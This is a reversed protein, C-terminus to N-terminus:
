ETVPMKITGLNEYNELRIDKLERSNDFDYFNKINPNLWLTPAKPLNHEKIAKEYRNIQERIGDIQNEYIHADNTIFTFQGPKAGISQAILYCLTAYQVVNFPLGLPVDSSRSTVLLNLKGDILNWQSNWVCSPLAATELWENQWLSLVMRRNGPNEKLTEILNDILHYKNVIWGYATGITHSFDEKLENPHKKAYIENINRGQYTGNESIEWEDWIKIGRDKLWRVDNSAVQYIWLIELVATKFAVKKSVLIPFESGLDFQLIQHPLRITRASSKAQATHDPIVSVASAKRSDTKKYNTIHEGNELIRRCLDIYQEDFKSM